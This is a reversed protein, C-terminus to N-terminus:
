LSEVIADLKAFLEDIKNVIRKQEPYPPLMLLVNEFQKKTIHVMGSGHSQSYFESIM